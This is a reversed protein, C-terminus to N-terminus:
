EEELISGLITEGDIVIDWEHISLIVNGPLLLSVQSWLKILWIDQASVVKDGVEVYSEIRRAVLGAIQIVKYVFGTDTRFTMENRENEFHAQLSGADYVANLFKWPIYEQQILTSPLVARQYHVNHVNMSINILYGADGIDQTQALFIPYYSKEIPVQDGSRYLIKSVVGHAPSLISVTDQVGIRHPHRLFWFYYAGLLISCISMCRFFIKRCIDKM